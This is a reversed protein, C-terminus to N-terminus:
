KGRLDLVSIHLETSRPDCSVKPLTNEAAVNVANWTPVLRSVKLMSPLPM